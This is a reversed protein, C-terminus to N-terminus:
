NISAIKVAELTKKKTVLFFLILENECSDTQVSPKSSLSDVQLAPSAPKIGVDLLDGPSPFSLGGWYEQRSFGMSLPAQLAM